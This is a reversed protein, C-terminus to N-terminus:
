LGVRQCFRRQDNLETQGACKQKAKDLPRM